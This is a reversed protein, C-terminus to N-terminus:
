VPVAVSVVSGNFHLRPRGPAAFVVAIELGRLGPSTRAATDDGDRRLVAFAGRKFARAGRPAHARISRVAYIVLALARVCVRASSVFLSITYRAPVRLCFGHSRM